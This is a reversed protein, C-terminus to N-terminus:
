PASLAAVTTRSTESAIESDRNASIENVTGVRISDPHDFSLRGEPARFPTDVTLPPAFTSQM